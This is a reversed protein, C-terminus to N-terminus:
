ELYTAVPEELLYKIKRQVESRWKESDPFFHHLFDLKVKEEFEKNEYGYHFGQNELIMRNVTKIQPVVGTGITGFEATLAIVESMRNKKALRQVYDIVDGSVPYFGEDQPTTVFYNVRDTESFIGRIAGVEDDSTEVGTILHLQAEEGLGTHFDLLILKQYQAFLPPLFTEFLNVPPQFSGGGFFVGKSFEYQGSATAQRLDAKSFGGFILKWSLGLATKVLRLLPNGVRGTPNLLEQLKVYGLNVTEFFEPRNGFNRNLDVNNENVRRHYKFGYPNIAHFMLVGVNPGITPYIKELFYHQAAAGVFAEAGHVGSNIMLLKRFHEKAPLYVYDISLDDNQDNPNEIKRKYIKADPYQSVLNLFKERSQEYDEPFFGAGSALGSLSSSFLLLLFLSGKLM